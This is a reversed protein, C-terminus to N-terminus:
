FADIVLSNKKLAHLISSSTLQFSMTMFDIGSRFASRTDPIAALRMREPMPVFSFSRHATSRDRPISRSGSSVTNSLAEETQLFVHPHSELDPMEQMSQISVLGESMSARASSATSLPSHETSHQLIYPVVQMFARTHRLVRSALRSPHGATCRPLERM